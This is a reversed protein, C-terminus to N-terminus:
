TEHARLHTYSVPIFLMMSLYMLHEPPISLYLSELNEAGAALYNKEYDEFGRQFLLIGSLCFLLVSLALLVYIIMQTQRDAAIMEQVLVSDEALLWPGFSALQHMLPTLSM